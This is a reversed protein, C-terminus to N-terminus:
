GCGPAGANDIVVFLYARPPIELLPTANAPTAKKVYPLEPLEGVAGARLVRGNLRVDLSALQQAEVLYQRVDRGAFDALDVRISDKLNLNLLLVSVSGPPAGLARPTCHAYARLLKGEVPNGVALVRDGMLRKWLLSAWYDPRPEFTPRDILPYGEGCLTQRVVVSHGSKALTGLEDLWWFSSAFRDTVGATGGSQAPGTEGMWLLANPQYRDRLSKVQTAWTRVENLVVPNLLNELTAARFQIVNAVGQTPYYHWTVVDVSDRPSLRLFGEMEGFLPALIEGVIPNYSSAPGALRTAPDISRLRRRAEAYDLAYRSPFVQGGPGFNLWFSNAENGLEWMAPWQRSRFAYTMLELANDPRWARDPGRNGPGASLDFFLDLGSDSTFDFLADYTEPTLKIALGAPVGEGEHAAFYVSDALTGGFRMYAPALAKTLARLRPSGLDRRFKSDGSKLYAVDLTFSLFRSDLVAIPASTKTTLHVVENGTAVPPALIRSVLIGVLVWNQNM